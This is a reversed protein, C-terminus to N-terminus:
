KQNLRPDDTAICVSRSYSYVDGVTIKKSLGADGHAAKAIKSQWANKLEECEDASDFSQSINWKSLPLAQPMRIMDYPPVMLYWGVLALAAAHRCKMDRLMDSLKLFPFARAALLPTTRNVPM